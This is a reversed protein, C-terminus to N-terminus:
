DDSLFDRWSLNNARLVESITEVGRMSDARVVSDSIKENECIEEYTIGVVFRGEVVRLRRVWVEYVYDGAPRLDHERIFDLVAKFGRAFRESQNTWDENKSSRGKADLEEFSTEVLRDRVKKRLDYIHYHIILFLWTGFAGKSPDFSEKKKVLRIVMEQFVDKLDDERLGVVQYMYHATIRSQNEPMSLYALLEYFEHDKWDVGKKFNVFNPLNSFFPKKANM